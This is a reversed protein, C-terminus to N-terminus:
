RLIIHSSPKTNKKSSASRFVKENAAGAMRLSHCREIEVMPNIVEAVNTPINMPDVVAPQNESRTPRFLASIKVVIQYAANESRLAKTPPGIVNNRARKSVPRPSEAIVTTPIVYTLSINEALCRPAYWPQIKIIASNPMGAVAYTALNQMGTAAQPQRNTKM